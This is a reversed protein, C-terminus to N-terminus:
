RRQVGDRLARARTACLLAAVSERGASRYGLDADPCIRWRRSFVAPRVESRAPTGAPHARTDSSSCRRSSGGFGDYRRHASSAVSSPSLITDPRPPTTSPRTVTRKAACARLLLSIPRPTPAARPKIAASARQGRADFDIKVLMRRDARLSRMAAFTPRLVGM